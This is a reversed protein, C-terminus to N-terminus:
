SASRQAFYQSFEFLARVKDGSYKEMFETRMASEEPNNAVLSLLQVSPYHRVPVLIGDDDLVWNSYKQMKNPKFGEGTCPEILWQPYRFVDVYDKLSPPQVRGILRTSINALVKAGGASQAITLPEQANLIVRIGSKAGNACLRAVNKSIEDYEFLIPAEDLFYFSVPFALSRRLAALYVLSVLVAADVDSSLNRLAVVLMQADSPFTTPVSLVKGVRSELWFRLRLKIFDLAKITDMSPNILQLRELSCFPIFDKLTPMQKWEDSGFGAKFAEGFRNLILDDQYFQELALTLLSEIADPNVDLYRGGVGLVMIRLIGLLSVKFDNFRDLQLKKPLGRLNPPELLNIGQDLNGIDFYSCINPLSNCFDNFTGTGDPRPFDLATVPIGKALAQVLLGAVLVSKGSRTTAFIGLNRHKEFLDLYIPNGGEVSILEFGKKDLTRNCVMPMMGPAETSLYLKRRNFPKTLQKNWSLLSFTDLWIKWAYETERVVWGQRQFLAMFDQCARRLQKKTPRHILYILSIYVPQAGSHLATEAEITEQANLEAGVDVKNKESAMTASLNSQGTLSRVTERIIKANGRQLQCFIETNYVTQRSIVEWLYRLQHEEDIWGDPKDAQILVGTFQTKVRICDRQAVPVDEHLLLSKPHVRSKIKETFTDDEVIITQPVSRPTSVNLRNWNVEWLEQANMPRIVLGMQDSILNLWKQYGQNYAELIIKKLSLAKIQAEAGTFKHWGKELSQLVKDFMDSNGKQEGQEVTFTAYLYLFNTSRIGQETLEKVRKREGGLLLQLEPTDTSKMLNSLEKQRATDNVFNGFHITLTEGELLDKCGSDLRALADYIQEESLIPSIGRCDFGFVIKYNEDKKKELLTAGVKSAGEQYELFSILQFNDEFPKLVRKGKGSPDQIKKIGIKKAML